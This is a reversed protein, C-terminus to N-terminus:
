SGLLRKQVILLIMIHLMSNLSKLPSTLVAIHNPTRKVQEEFLQHITKDKPYDVGTKNWDIVIQQYEEVSLDRKSM